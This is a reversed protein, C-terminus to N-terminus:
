VHMCLVAFRLQWGDDSAVINLLNWALQHEVDSLRLLSFQMFSALAGLLCVVKKSWHSEEYDYKGDLGLM